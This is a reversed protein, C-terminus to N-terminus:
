ARRRTQVPRFVPLQQGEAWPQFEVTVRRGIQLSESAGDTVVRSMMVPGEDLKILAVAFPLDNKYAPLVARRIITFSRIVGRGSAQEFAVQEGGCATCFGRPYFQWAKCSQCRELM